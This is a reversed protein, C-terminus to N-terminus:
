SIVCPSAMAPLSRRSSRSPMPTSVQPDIERQHVLIPRQAAIRPVIPIRAVVPHEFPHQLHDRALLNERVVPTWNM